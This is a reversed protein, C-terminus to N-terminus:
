TNGNQAGTELGFGPVFAGPPGTAPASSPQDADLVSEVADRVLDSLRIDHRRAYEAWRAKERPHLRVKLLESRGAM